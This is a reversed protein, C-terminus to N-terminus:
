KIFNNNKLFNFSNEWHEDPINISWNKNKFLYKLDSGHNLNYQNLNRLAETPISDIILDKFSHDTSLKHNSDPLNNEKLYEKFTKM